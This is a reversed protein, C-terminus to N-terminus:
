YITAADGTTYGEAEVLRGGSGVGGARGHVSMAWAKLCCCLLIKNRVSYFPIFINVNSM